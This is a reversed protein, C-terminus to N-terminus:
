GGGDTTEPRSDKTALRLAARAAFPQLPGSFLYIVSFISVAAIPGLFFAPVLFLAATLLYRVGRKEATIWKWMHLYSVRSVMLLASVLAYLTMFFLLTQGGHRLVLILASMLAAAAGPVPLGRFTGNSAGQLAMVNYFALRWAACCLYLGASLVGFVALVTSGSVFCVYGLMVPVVTGFTLFDALSDLQLGLASTADLKRATYGDLGDFLLAFLIFWGALTVGYVLRGQKAQLFFVLLATFGALANGLTLINPLMRLYSPRRSPKM